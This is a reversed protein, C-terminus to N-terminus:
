AILLPVTRLENGPYQRASVGLAAGRGFVPPSFLFADQECRVRIRTEGFQQPFEAPEDAGCCLYLSALDCFQLVDTLVELDRLTDHAEARLRVQRCAENNLFETLRQTDESSDNRSSLRNRAIRSFHESVIIGGVASISEAAGISDTWAVLFHAPAIALFSLPVASAAPMVDENDLQAWGADHVSIARVVDLSLAPLAPFDLRAALDGALVAHDTQGVLWWERAKQNQIKEVAHWASIPPRYRQNREGSPLPRLVM